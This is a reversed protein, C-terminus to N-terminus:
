SQAEKSATKQGGRPVFDRIVKRIMKFFKPATEDNVRSTPGSIAIAMPVDGMEPLPVAIIAAGQTFVNASFAYGDSRVAELDSLVHEIAYTRGEDIKLTNIRKVIEAVKGAEERSLIARGVASRLLPRMTGVEPNYSLSQSTRLIHAHQSQLGNQLGLSVTEQSLAALHGMMDTIPGNEFLRDHTWKGLLAMRVSPCYSKTNPDFTLYGLSEISRLLALTSSVPYGLDHSIETLTRPSKLKEFYEFIAFVRAASKVGSESKAPKRASKSSKM